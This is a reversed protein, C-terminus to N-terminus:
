DRLGAYGLATVIETGVHKGARILIVKAGDEGLTDRTGHLIATLAAVSTFEGLEPRRNM